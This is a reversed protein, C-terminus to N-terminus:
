GEPMFAMKNVQKRAVQVCRAESNFDYAYVDNVAGLEHSWGGFTWWRDKFFVSGDGDTIEIPYPAKINHKWEYTNVIIAEKVQRDNCGQLGLIMSLLLMIIVHVISKPFTPIM